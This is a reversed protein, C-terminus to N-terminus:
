MPTLNLQQKHPPYCLGAEACGQFYVELVVGQQLEERHAQIQYSLKVSNRLVEVRGQFEDEILEGKPINIPTLPAGEPILSKAHIRPLYLYHGPEIHWSLIVSNGKLQGELLFAQDVPLFINKSTNDASTLPNDFFGAWAMPKFAPFTLLLFITGLYTAKRSFFSNM